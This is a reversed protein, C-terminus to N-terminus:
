EELDSLIKYLSDMENESLAKDYIILNRREADADVSSCWGQGLSIGNFEMTTFWHKEIYGKYEGNVHAYIGNNSISVIIINDENLRIAGCPKTTGTTEGIALNINFQEPEATSGSTIAIPRITFQSFNSINENDEGIGNKDFLAVYIIKSQYDAKTGVKITPNVIIALTIGNEISIGDIHAISYVGNKIKTGNDDTEGGDFMSTTLEDNLNNKLSFFHKLSDKLPLDNPLEYGKVANKSFDAEKIILVRSM